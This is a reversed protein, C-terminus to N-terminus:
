TRNEWPFDQYPSTEGLFGAFREYAGPEAINLVLLDQPRDAFYAMVERNYREYHAIMIDRNYPDEDTTGHIRLINYMYGTRVYNARRLDDATPPVRGNLGFLKGHYRTISQYWQEPDNRVTLIFKSGPFAKDLQAYTMPWSFPVDQFVQARKCYDMIPGFRGDFYHQDALREASAQDGVVYGLDTFAKALSTTGTKNRGICFIKPKGMVRVRNAVNAYHVRLRSSVAKAVAIM